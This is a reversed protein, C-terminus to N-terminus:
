IGCASAILHETNSLSNQRPKAMRPWASVVYLLSLDLAIGRDEFSLSEIGLVLSWLLKAFAAAFAGCVSRAGGLHAARCVYQRVSV